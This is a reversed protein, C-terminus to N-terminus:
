RKRTKRVLWCPARIARRSCSWRARAAQSSRIGQLLVAAKRVEGEAVELRVRGPELEHQDALVQEEPRLTEQERAGLEGAALGLPEAVPQEVDGGAEGPMGAAEDEVERAFPRPSRLEEGGEFAEAEQRM